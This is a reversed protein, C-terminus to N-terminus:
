WKFSKDRSESQVVSDIGSAIDIANGKKYTKDIKNSRRNM